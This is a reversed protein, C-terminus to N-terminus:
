AVGDPTRPGAQLATMYALSMRTRHRPRHPPAANRWGSIRLPTSKLLPSSRRPDTIPRGRYGSTARLWALLPDEVDTHHLEDTELRHNVERLFREHEHRDGCAAAQWRPEAIIAALHVTEPYATTAQPIRDLHNHGTLLDTRARFRVAMPHFPSQRWGEVIGRAHAWVAALHEATHQAALRTHRRQARTLEPTIAIDLQQDRLWTHHRHCLHAVPDLWIEVHEDRIARETLCHRCAAAIQRDRPITVMVRPTEPHAAGRPPPAAPRLARILAAPSRGTMVGLRNWASATLALDANHPLRRNPTFGIQSTITDLPVTNAAALRRLFSVTTEAPLPALPFPLARATQRSPALLPSRPAPM